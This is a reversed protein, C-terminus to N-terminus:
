KIIVVCIKWNINILNIVNSTLNNFWIIFQKKNILIKRGLKIAPFDTRKVLDLMTNKGVGLMEAAEKVTIVLKEDIESDQQKM